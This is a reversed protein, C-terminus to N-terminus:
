KISRMPDNSHGCPSLAPRDRVEAVNIRNVGEPVKTNDEWGLRPRGFPRQRKSNGVSVKAHV